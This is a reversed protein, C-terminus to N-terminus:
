HNRTGQFVCNFILDVPGDNHVRHFAGDPILVVSSSDVEIKENGVEMTGRGQVFFYVEEQGPHTHGRTSQGPKVPM